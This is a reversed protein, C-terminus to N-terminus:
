QNHENGTVESYGYELATRNLELMDHHQPPLTEELARYLEEISPFSRTGAFAGLAVMNAIQEEGIEAAIDTAQIPVFTVDDRREYEDHLTTNLVITGGSRVKDHFRQFSPRNMLVASHPESVFPSAVDDESIVVLCHATGGRMEPGYSPLWTVQLDGRMSAVAVTRGMLLIGQGGFGAFVLSEEM